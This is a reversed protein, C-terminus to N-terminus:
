YIFQIGAEHSSFYICLLFIKGSEKKKCVFIKKKRISTHTRCSGECWRLGYGTLWGIECRLLLSFLNKIYASNLIAQNLFNWLRVSGKNSRTINKTRYFKQKNENREGLKHLFNRSWSIFFFSSFFKSMNEGFALTSPTKNSSSPSVLSSNNNFPGSVNVNNYNSKLDQEIGDGADKM